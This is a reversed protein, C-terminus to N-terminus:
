IKSQMLAKMCVNWDCVQVATLVTWRDIGSWMLKVKIKQLEVGAVIVPLFTTLKMTQIEFDHM